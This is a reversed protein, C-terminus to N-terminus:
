RAANQGPTIFFTATSLVEGNQSTSVDARVLGEVALVQNTLEVTVTGDNNRTGSVSCSTGDPKLARLTVLVGAPVTLDQMDDCFTIKLFRSNADAQKATVYTYNALQNINLRINQTLIM